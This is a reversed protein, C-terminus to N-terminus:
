ITNKGSDKEKKIGLRKSRGRDISNQGSKKEKLLKKIGLIESGRIFWFNGMKRGLPKPSLHFKSIDAISATRRKELLDIIKKEEIEIRRSVDKTSYLKHAYIRYKKRKEDGWRLKM